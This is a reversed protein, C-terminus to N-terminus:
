AKEIEELYKKAIKEWSFNEVTYKRAKEGFEKRFEDDALLENIKRAWADANGSEVLFGNQGEKTADKLGELASSVVVRGCAAAELVNIGFGEMTGSVKINPSIVVDAANLVIKKDREAINPVLKVRNELNKEKAAKECNAFDDEDGATNKGVRAGAAVLIVNEGLQPMVNAIFWSTGKHPVFRALRFIVKKGSLDVKLIKEMEERTHNESFEEPNIGNPIFVCHDRRIGAKVAEEITANGVMFLKNLKKLSIVNVNKYIKPLFGKKNAYTIDLGHVVCFFKKKRHFIKVGEGLPALVGNGLVCADYRAMLFLMRFFAAPLFFPLFIKGRGNAITKVEAIKSLSQALNFNQSEVGGRIPPYSHSVFLIKM